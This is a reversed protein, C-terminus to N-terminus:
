GNSFLRDSLADLKERVQWAAHMGNGIALVDAEYLVRLLTRHIPEPFRNHFEEIKREAEPLLIVGGDLLLETTRLIDGLLEDHRILVLIQRKEELRLGRVKALEREASVVNAIEQGSEIAEFKGVDHLRAAVRLRMRYGEEVDFEELLSEAHRQAMLLHGKLTFEHVESPQPHDLEDFATEDVLLDGLSAYPHMQTELADFEEPFFLLAGSVNVVPVYVGAKVLSTKTSDLVSAFEEQPIQNTLVVVGLESHPIGVFTLHHVAERGSAPTEEGPFLIDPGSRRPYVLAVGKDFGRFPEYYKAHGLVDPVRLGRDEDRLRIADVFLPFSDQKSQIGVTEGCCNGELIIAPLNDWSTYHVLTGPPLTASGELFRQARSRNDIDARVREELSPDLLSQLRQHVLESLEDFTLSSLQLRGEEVVISPFRRRVSEHTVPVVTGMEDLVYRVSGTLARVQEEKLVLETTILTRRRAEPVMSGYSEAFRKIFLWTAEPDPSEVLHRVFRGRRQTDSLLEALENKRKELFRLLREPAKSANVEYIPFLSLRERLIPYRKFLETSKIGLRFALLLEGNTPTNRAQTRTTGVKNNTLQPEWEKLLEDARQVPCFPIFAELRKWRPDASRAQTPDSPQVFSETCVELLRELMQFVGIRMAQTDLIHMSRLASRARGRYRKILHQFQRIVTSRETVPIGMLQDVFPSGVSMAKIAVHADPFAAYPMIGALRAREMHKFLLPHLHPPIYRIWSLSLTSQEGHFLIEIIPKAQRPTLRKLVDSVDDQDTVFLMTELQPTPIRSIASAYADIMESSQKALAILFDVPSVELLRDLFARMMLQEQPTRAAFAFNGWGNWEDEPDDPAQITGEVLADEMMVRRCTESFVSGVGEFMPGEGMSASFQSLLLERTMPSGLAARMHNVCRDGETPNLSVYNFRLNDLLEYTWSVDEEPVDRLSAIEQRLARLQPDIIARARHLATRIAVTTHDSIDDDDRGVEQLAHLRALPDAPLDKDLHDFAVEMAEEFSCQTLFGRLEKRLTIAELPNQRVLKQEFAKREDPSLPFRDIASSGVAISHAVVKNLLERALAPEDQALEHLYHPLVDPERLAVQRFVELRDTHTLQFSNLQELCANADIDIARQVAEMRKGASPLAAIRSLIADRADPDLVGFLESHVYVFAEPNHRTDGTRLRWVFSQLYRRAQAPVRVNELNTYSQSTQALREIFVDLSKDHFFFSILREQLQEMAQKNMQFEPSRLLEIAEDIDRDLVKAAVIDGPVEAPPRGFKEWLAQMHKLRQVDECLSEVAQLVPERETFTEPNSDKSSYRLKDEFMNEWTLRHPIKHYFSVM